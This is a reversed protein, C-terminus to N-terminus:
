PESQEKSARTEEQARTRDIRDLKAEMSRLMDAAARQRELLRALAMACVGLLILILFEPAFVGGAGFADPLIAYILPASLVGLAGALRLLQTLVSGSYSAGYFALSAGGSEGYRHRSSSSRSSRSKRRKKIATKEAESLKDWMREKEPRSLRDWEKIDM